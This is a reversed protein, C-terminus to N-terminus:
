EGDFEEGLGQLFQEAQAAIDDDSYDVGSTSHDGVIRPDGEMPYPDEWGDVAVSRTVTPSPTAVASRTVTEPREAEVQPVFAPVPAAMGLREAIFGEAEVWVPDSSAYEHGPRELWMLGQKPDYGFLYESGTDSELSGIVWQKQAVVREFM